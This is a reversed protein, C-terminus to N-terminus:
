LVSSLDDVIGGTKRPLRVQHSHNPFGAGTEDDVVHPSRGLRPGCQRRDPINDTGDSRFEFCRNVACEPGAYGAVADHHIRAKTEAFSFLLIRLQQAAKVFQAGADVLRHQNTGRAFGKQGLGIRAIGLKGRSRRCGNRDEASCGDDPHM